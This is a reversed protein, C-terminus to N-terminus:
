QKNVMVGKRKKFKLSGNPYALEQSNQLDELESQGKSADGSFLIKLM